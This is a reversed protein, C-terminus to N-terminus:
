QLLYQHVATVIELPLQHRPGDPDSVLLPSPSVCLTTLKLVSAIEARM